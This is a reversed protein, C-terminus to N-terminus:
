PHVGAAARLALQVGILERELTVFV